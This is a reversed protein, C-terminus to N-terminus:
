PIDLKVSGSSAGVEVFITSKAPDFAGQFKDGNAGGPTPVEPTSLIGVRYKGPPIGKNDPGTIKFSGDAGLRTPFSKGTPKGDKEEGFVVMVQEGKEPKYVQNAQNLTGTVVVDSSGSCGVVVSLTVFVLAKCLSHM